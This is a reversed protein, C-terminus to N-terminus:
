NEGQHWLPAEMQFDDTGLTWNGKRQGTVQSSVEVQVTVLPLFNSALKNSKERLWLCGLYYLEIPKVIKIDRIDERGNEEQPYCINGSYIIEWM